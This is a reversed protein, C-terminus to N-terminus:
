GLIHFDALVMELINMRVIFLILRGTKLIFLLCLLDSVSELATSVSFSLSLKSHHDPPRCFRFVIGKLVSIKENVLRCICVSMPLFGHCQVEKAQLFDLSLSIMGLTLVLWAM